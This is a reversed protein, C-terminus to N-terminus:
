LETASKINDDSLGIVIKAGGTALGKLMEIQLLKLLEPNEKIAEAETRKMELDAKFRELQAEAQVQIM